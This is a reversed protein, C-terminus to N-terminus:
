QKAASGSRGRRRPAPPCLTPAAATPQAPLAAWTDSWYRWWNETAQAAAQWMAQQADSIAQPSWLAADRTLAPEEDLHPFWFRHWPTM